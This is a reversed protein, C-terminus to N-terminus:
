SFAPELDNYIGSFSAVEPTSWKGNNKKSHMVVSILGRGYQITYFLEDGNPSIAMDRNGFENSIIDPAFLVPTHSPPQQNFYPNHLSITKQQAQSYLTAFFLIFLLI